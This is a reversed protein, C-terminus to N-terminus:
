TRRRIHLLGVAALISFIFVQGWAGLAPISAPASAIPAVTEFVQFALDQSSAPGSFDDLKMGGAYPAGFVGSLSFGSLVFSYQSGATVPFPTTLNIPSFGVANSGADTLNIAQSYVPVGPSAMLGSGNAGNYLYLMGAGTTRSRVDIRHVQGALTATFTQGTGLSAGFAVAGVPQSITQAHLASGSSLTIVAPILLAARSIRM